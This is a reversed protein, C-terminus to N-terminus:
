QSSRPSYPRSIGPIMRRRRDDVPQDSCAAVAALMHPLTIPKRVYVGLGFRRAVAKGQEDSNSMPVVPTRLGHASLQVLIDEGDLVTGDVDLLVLSPRERQIAELAQRGDSLVQASYGQLTLATAVSEYATLSEDVILVRGKRRAIGGQITPEVLMVGIRLTTSVMGSPRQGVLPANNCLQLYIASFSQYGAAGASSVRTTALYEAM